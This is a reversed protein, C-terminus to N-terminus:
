GNEGTVFMHVSKHSNIMQGARDSGVIEALRQVDFKSYLVTCSQNDGKTKSKVDHLMNCMESYFHPYQPLGYFVLHKIGRLRM